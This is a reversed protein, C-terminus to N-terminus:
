EQSKYIIRETTKISGRRCLFGHDSTIYINVANLRNVLNNVLQKLEVFAEECAEFVERETSANDGRADIVNHYIYIVKKGTFVKKFESSSLYELDKYTIALSNPNKSKLIKDRNSTGESSIDDVYVDNKEDM